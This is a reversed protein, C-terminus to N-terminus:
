EFERAVVRSPHYQATCGDPTGNTFASKGCFAKLIATEADVRAFQQTDVRASIDVPSTTTTVANRSCPRTVSLPRKLLSDVALQASNGLVRILEFTVFLPENALKLGGRGFAPLKEGHELRLIPEELVLPLAPSPEAGAASWLM